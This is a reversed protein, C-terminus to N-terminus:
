RVPLRSCVRRKCMDILPDANESSMSPCVDFQINRNHNRTAITGTDRAGMREGGRGLRKGGREPGMVLPRWVRGM